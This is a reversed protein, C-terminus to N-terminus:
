GPRITQLINWHPTRVPRAQTVRSALGALYTRLAPSPPVVITEPRGGALTPVPLALDEATRLDAVQRYLTILELHGQSSRACARM